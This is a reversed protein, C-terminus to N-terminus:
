CCNVDCTNVWCDLELRDELEEVALRDELEEISLESYVQRNLPKLSFGENSKSM